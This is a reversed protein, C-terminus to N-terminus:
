IQAGSWVLKAGFATLLAGFIRELSAKVRRYRRQVLSSGFCLALSGYWISENCLVVALAAWKVPTPTSPVFATTFVTGFFVVVKPNSLGLLLGKMFAGRMRVDAASGTPMPDPAHRWMISGILCLYLGGAVQFVRYLGAAQTLLVQLGLLAAAAWILSAAVTGTAAKWAASRNSAAATRTILVFAPGPSMAAALNLAAVAALPTLDTM